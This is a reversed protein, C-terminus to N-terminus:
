RACYVNYAERVKNLYASNRRGLNNYGNEGVNYMQVAVDWSYRRHWREVNWAGIQINNDPDRLWAIEAATAHKYDKVAGADQAVSLQVGMLGYSSDYDLAPDETNIASPNFSSETKAHAAILEPELGYFRAWKDILDAFPWPAPRSGNPGGPAAPAGGQASKVLGLVALGGLLLVVVIGTIPSM